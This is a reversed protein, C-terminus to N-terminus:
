KNLNIIEEVRRFINVALQAGQERTLPQAPAFETESIGKMVGNFVCEKIADYSWRDKEVDIFKMELVEDIFLYAYSVTDLSMTKRGGKGWNEGWSNQIIFGNEDWGILIIAHSCGFGHNSVAFLPYQYEYLARKMDDYNSRLFGVYGKLKYKEALKEFEKFNPNNFLKQRMEPMEYLEDYYKKPISGLKCLFKLLSDPNMGQYVAEDNRHCGYIFGESFREDRNFEIRHLIQLIEATAFACCANYQHQNTIDPLRDDPLIFSKPLETKSAGCVINYDYTRPSPLGVVGNSNM